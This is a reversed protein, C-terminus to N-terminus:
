VINRKANPVEIGVAHKGPIPAVIRVSSAALRLAINDQLNVIRSLKVGPAPLIEFMTIVPGKRIGTVEAEIKFEELTEKLTLASDRTAQDIVWYEGDPYQNLIEVPVHYKKRSFHATQPNATKASPKKRAQESHIAAILEAEELAREVSDATGAHDNAAKEDATDPKFYQEKQDLYELALPSNLPKIAPLNLDIAEAGSSGSTNALSDEMSFNHPPPLSLNHKNGRRIDKKKEDEGKRPFLANKLMQIATVEMLTLVIIILGFGTQGTLELLIYDRSLANFDRICFFGIALTLFPFLSAGLFFIRDPRWRPDALIVAAYGLYVPIFFALIGYAHSFFLGFSPNFAKIGFVAGMLSLGLALSFVGLVAAAALTIVRYKFNGDKINFFNHLWKKGKDLFSAHQTFIGKNRM